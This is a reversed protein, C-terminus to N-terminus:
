APHRQCDKCLGWLTVRAQNIETAMAPLPVTELSRIEPIDYWTHCRQCIFHSHDELHLGYLSYGKKTAMMELIGQETLDTLAKYVTGRALEPLIARLSEYVKDASFHEGKKELFFDLVARRQATVRLHRERLLSLSTVPM